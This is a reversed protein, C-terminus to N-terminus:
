APLCPNGEKGELSEKWCSVELETPLLDIIVILFNNLRNLYKELGNKLCRSSQLYTKFNSKEWEIFLYFICLWTYTKSIIRLHLYVWVCPRM